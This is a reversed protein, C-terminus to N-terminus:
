FQCILPLMFLALQYGSLHKRTSRLFLPQLYQSTYFLPGLILATSKFFPPEYQIYSDDALFFIALGLTTMAFSLGIIWITSPQNKPSRSYLPIGIFFIALAIGGILFSFGWFFSSM